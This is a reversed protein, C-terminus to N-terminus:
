PVPESLPGPRVWAVRLLIMGYGYSKHRGVGKRVLRAFVAPDRVTLTGQLTADPGNPGPGHGRTARSRSFASLRCSEIRVTEGCREALWDAYVRERDRTRKGQQWGDFQFADVEAGKVFTRNSEPDVVNRDLRRVPRVRLDFGLRGGVQFQVPMPKTRLRAPDVVALADPTAVAAAVDCLRDRDLDSYAYLGAVRRRASSFLRFPQLVARGFMEALLIHLAHGIDVPGRSLLGRDRVWGTIARMDLPVHILHAAM